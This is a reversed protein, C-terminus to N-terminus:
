ATSDPTGSFSVAFRDDFRDAISAQNLPNQVRVPLINASKPPASSRDASVHSARQHEREITSGARSAGNSPRRRYRRYRRPRCRRWTWASTLAAVVATIGTAPCPCSPKRTASCCVCFIPWRRRGSSAVWKLPWDPDPSRGARRWCDHNQSSCAACVRLRSVQAAEWGEAAALVTELSPLTLSPEVM